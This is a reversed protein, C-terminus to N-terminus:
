RLTALLTMADELEMEARFGSPTVITVLRKRAESVVVRKLPRMSEACWSRLTEPHVGIEAGLKTLSRVGQARRTRVWAIVRTKLGRPYRQGRGLELKSIEQRLTETSM